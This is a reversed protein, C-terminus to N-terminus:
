IKRVRVTTKTNVEVGDPVENSHEMLEKTYARLTSPFVTEKIIDEAGRKRLDAFLKERDALKAYISSHLYFQGLDKVKFNQLNNLQMAEVFPGQIREIQTNIEKTEAELEKKKDLLKKLKAGLKTLHQSM